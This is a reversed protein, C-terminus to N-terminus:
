IEDFKCFQAQSHICISSVSLQIRICMEIIVLYVSSNVDCTNCSKDINLKALCKKCMICECPYDIIITDEYVKSSINCMFNWEKVSVSPSLDM